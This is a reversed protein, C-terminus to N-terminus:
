FLSSERRSSSPPIV